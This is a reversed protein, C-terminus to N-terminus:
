FRSGFFAKLLMYDRKQWWRTLHSRARVPRNRQHSVFAIQWFNFALPEVHVYDDLRSRNLIDEMEGFTFAAKYSDLTDQYFWSGWRMSYLDALHVALRGTKPRIIDFLILTGEPKVLEAAADVVRVVDDASDCHHLALHWTVLDYNSRGLGDVDFWSGQRFSVNDLDYQARSRRAFDLMNASLDLGTFRMEPMESAIKCLLQGSGCGLDLARGSIPSLKLISEVILQYLVALAGDRGDRTFQEDQEQDYMVVDMEPQRALKQPAVRQMLGLYPQMM